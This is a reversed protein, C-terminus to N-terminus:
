EEMCNKLCAATKGAKSLSELSLRFSSPNTSSKYGTYIRSTFTPIRPINIIVLSVDCM